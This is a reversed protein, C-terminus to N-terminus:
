GLYNLALKKKNYPVCRMKYYEHLLEKLIQELIVEADDFDDPSVFYIM